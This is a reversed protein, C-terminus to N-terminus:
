ANAPESEYYTSPPPVRIGYDAMWAIVKDLYEGFEATDLATTSRTTQGVIEGTEKNVVARRLFKLKFFEHAMEADFEEGQEHRFRVFRDLVVGFYYANQRNTRPKRYRRIQIRHFGELTDLYAILNSRERPESFNVIADRM